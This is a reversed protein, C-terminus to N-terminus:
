KRSQMLGGYGRMLWRRFQSKIQRFKKSTLDNRHLKESIIGTLNEVQLSSLDAM